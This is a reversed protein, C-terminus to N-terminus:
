VSARSGKTACVETQPNEGDFRPHDHFALDVPWLFGFDRELRLKM